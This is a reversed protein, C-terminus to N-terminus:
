EETCDNRNLPVCFFRDIPLIIEIKKHHLTESRHRETTVKIVADSDYPKFSISLDHIGEVMEVVEGKLRPDNQSCPQGSLHLVVNEPRIGLVVSDGKKIEANGLTNRDISLQLGLSKLGVVIGHDHKDIVMAPFLNPIGLFRAAELTAPRDFVERRPGSQHLTGHILIHIKEGFFFAEELDHTVMLTTVHYRQQISKLLGWLERRFTENLASFPEDLILLKPSPALARALAVRQREGGSLNAPMRDKLDGLDLADILSEVVAWDNGHPKRRCRIGYMINEKVSLHPFIALQQPLYGVDRREVPVQTLDKGNLFIRGAAPRRFGVILELVTSKGAGSPGLLAHCEGSHIELSLPNLTFSGTRLTIGELKLM